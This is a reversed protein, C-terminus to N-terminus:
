QRKRVRRRPRLWIIDFSKATNALLAPARRTLQFYMENNIVTGFPDPVLAAISKFRYGLLVSKPTPMFEVGDMYMVAPTARKPNAKIIKEDIYRAYFRYGVFAVLFGLLVIVIVNM